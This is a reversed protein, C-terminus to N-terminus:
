PPPLLGVYSYALQFVQLLIALVVGLLVVVISTLFITWHLRARDVIREGGLLNDDLYSM